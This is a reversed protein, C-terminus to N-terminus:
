KRSLRLHSGSIWRDRPKFGPSWEPTHCQLCTEPTVPDMRFGPNRIHALGIGHCAECQVGAFALTDRVNRFGGKRFGTTHCTLCNPNYEDRTKLLSTLASPHRTKFYSDYIAQHCVRCSLGGSYRLDTPKFGEFEGALYADEWARLPEALASVLSADPDQTQASGRVSAGTGVKGNMTVTIEVIGSTPGGSFYTPVEGVKQLFGAERHERTLPDRVIVLDAGPFSTIFNLIEARTALGVILIQADTHRRLKALARGARNRVAPDLKAKPTLRASWQVVAVTRGSRTRVSTGELLEDPAFDGGLAPCGTERWLNRLYSDAGAEPAGSGCVTWPVIEQARKFVAFSLKALTLDVPAFNGGHIVILSTHSSQSSRTKLFALERPFTKLIGATGSLYGEGGAYLVTLEWRGSQCAQVILAVTAVLSRLGASIGKAVSAWQLRYTKPKLRAQLGASAHVMEKKM